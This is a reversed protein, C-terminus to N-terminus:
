LHLYTINKQNSIGNISVLHWFDYIIAEALMNSTLSNMDLEAYRKNNNAIIVLDANLFADDIDVAKYKFNEELEFKSCAFDHIFIEAQDFAAELENLILLSPTGRLDDTEPVGKFAM